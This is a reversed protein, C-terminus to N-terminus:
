KKKLRILVAEPHIGGREVEASCKVGQSPRVEVTIGKSGDAFAIETCVDIKFRGNGIDIHIGRSSGRSVRYNKM